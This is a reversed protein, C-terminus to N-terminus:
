RILFPLDNPDLNKIVPFEKTITRVARYTTGTVHLKVGTLVTEKIPGTPKGGVLLRSFRRPFNGDPVINFPLENARDYILQFSAGVAVGHVEFNLPIDRHINRPARKPIRPNSAIRIHLRDSPRYWESVGNDICLQGYYNKVSIPPLDIVTNIPEPVYMTLTTELKKQDDGWRYFFAPALWNRPVRVNDGRRDVRRTGDDYPFGSTSRAARAVILTKAPSEGELEFVGTTIGRQIIRGSVKDLWRTADVSLPDPPAAVTLKGEITPPVQANSSPFLVELEGPIPNKQYTQPVQLVIQKHNFSPRLSVTESRTRLNFSSFAITLPDVVKGTDDEAQMVIWAGGKASTDLPNVLNKWYPYDGIGQDVVKLKAVVPATVMNEPPVLFGTADSPKAEQQPSLFVAMGASLSAVGIGVWPLLKVASIM